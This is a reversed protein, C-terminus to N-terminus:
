RPVRLLLWVKGDWLIPPFHSFLQKADFIQKLARPMPIIPLLSATVKGRSRV